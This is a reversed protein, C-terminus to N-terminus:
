SMGQSERSEEKDKAPNKRRRGEKRGETGDRM